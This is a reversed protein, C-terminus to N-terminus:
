RATAIVQELVQKQGVQFATLAALLTDTPTTRALDATLQASAKDLGQAFGELGKRLAKFYGALSRVTLSSQVLQDSVASFRDCVETFSM